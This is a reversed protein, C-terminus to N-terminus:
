KHPNMIVYRHQHSTHSGRHSDAFKFTYNSDPTPIPHCTHAWMSLAAWLCFWVNKHPDGLQRQFWCIVSLWLKEESVRQMKKQLCSGHLCSLMIHGTCTLGTQYSCWCQLKSSVCFWLPLNTSVSVQTCLPVLGQQCFWEKGLTELAWTSSFPQSTQKLNNVREWLTIM